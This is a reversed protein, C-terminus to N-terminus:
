GPNADGGIGEDVVERHDLLSELDFRNTEPNYEYYELGTDRIIRTIRVRGRPEVEPATDFVYVGGIEGNIMVSVLRLVRM